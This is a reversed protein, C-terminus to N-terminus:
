EAAADPDAPRELVEPQGQPLDGGAESSSRSSGVFSRTSSPDGKHPRLHRRGHTRRSEPAHALGAPGVGHSDEHQKRTGESAGPRCHGVAQSMAMLRFVADLVGVGCFRVGSRRELCCVGVVTVRVDRRVGTRATAPIHRRLQARGGNRNRGRFLELSARAGVNWM